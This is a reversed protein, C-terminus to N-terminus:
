NDCWDSSCLVTVMAPFGRSTAATGPSTIDFVACFTVSCGAVLCSFRFRFGEYWGIAGTRGGCCVRPEGRGILSGDTVVGKLWHSHLM